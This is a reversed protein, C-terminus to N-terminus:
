SAVPPLPGYYPNAGVESVKATLPNTAPPLDVLSEFAGVEDSSSDDIDIINM